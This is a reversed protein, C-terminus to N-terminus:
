RSGLAVRHGQGPKIAQIFCGCTRLDDASIASFRPALRARELPTGVRKENAVVRFGASEMAAVHVSFPLRNLFYPRRGRVIKWAFDSVTWHGNWERTVRHSQFDITHSMLGGDRLFRALACNRRARM